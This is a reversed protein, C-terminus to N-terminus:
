EFDIHELPGYALRNTGFPGPRNLYIQLPTTCLTGINRCARGSHKPLHLRKALRVGRPLTPGLDNPLSATYKQCAIDGDGAARTHPNAFM